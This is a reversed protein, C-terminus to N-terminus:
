SGPGDPDPNDWPPSGGDEVYNFSMEGNVPCGLDIQLMTVARTWPTIAVEGLRIVGFGKVHVVHGYIEIGDGSPGLKRVLSTHAVGAASLFQSGQALPSFWRRVRAPAKEGDANMPDSVFLGSVEEKHYSDRLGSWTDYKDLTGVASDVTIPVGAIRLNEFRSGILRVSPETRKDGVHTSVLNAVIRDATVMDMVNLREITAKAQTYYVPIDDDGPIQSGVVESHALDFSLIDRHRFGASKASGHGGIGFLSSAAQVEISEHFPITLHGGAGIATAKFRFHGPL